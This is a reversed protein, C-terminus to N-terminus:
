LSSDTACPDKKGPVSECVKVSEAGFGGLDVKDCGRDGGDKEGHKGGVGTVWWAYVYHGDRERDCVWGTKHDASTVAYDSGQRTTQTHAQAAGQAMVGVMAIVALGVSMLSARRM